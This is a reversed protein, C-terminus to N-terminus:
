VTQVILFQPIYSMYLSLMPDLHYADTCVGALNCPELDLDSKSVILNLESEFKGILNLHPKDIYM